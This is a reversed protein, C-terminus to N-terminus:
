NGKIEIVTQHIGDNGRIGSNLLDYLASINKEFDPNDYEYIHVFKKAFKLYMLLRNASCVSMKFVIRKHPNLKSM